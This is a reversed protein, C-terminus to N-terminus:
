EANEEAYNQILEHLGNPGHMAGWFVNAALAKAKVRNIASCPLSQMAEHLIAEAGDALKQLWQSRVIESTSDSANAEDQLDEFFDDELLETLKNAWTNARTRHEDAIGETRGGAAFVSVAHRLIRQAVEIREIRERSIDELEKTGGPRGFIQLTRHRFPIIREHFGETGGEGRVMGRAVLHMEGSSGRGTTAPSLLIPQKWDASFLGDVIREYNFRRPGLFAPPTGRPNTKNSAPAWPDATQGKVDVIRRADSNARAAVVTGSQGVLRVRRCIEIYYPDMDSLLKTEPKGGDWHIIWLLAIGSDTMPYEDLVSPRNKVVTILDHTFHAGPRISPTMSLAPRNGYGSPMRSVGYNYRGGYGDTTQLTILAFIWDDPSAQEVVESKLDHNKSTVLMDLGDPTSVTNKFDGRREASSAPPQMFAPQAIDDVVLHWPEDDPWEPTLARIIREWEEAGPPPDDLGNRHLAMAGLQVLFAHWAHRQHPRLAPFAEVEDAMLAAYIDALSADCNTGDSQRYRILPETLLNYM